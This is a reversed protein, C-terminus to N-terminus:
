WGAEDSCKDLPTDMGQRISERMGSVSLLSHTENISRWDDQEHLIANVLQEREGDSLGSWDLGREAAISRAQQEGYQSLEIWSPWQQAALQAFLWVRQQEPLQLVLDLIQENSIKLVAM